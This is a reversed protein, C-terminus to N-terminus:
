PADRTCTALRIDLLTSVEQEDGQTAERGFTGFHGFLV